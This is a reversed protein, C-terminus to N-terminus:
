QRPIVKQRPAVVCTTGYSGCSWCGNTRRRLCVFCFETQCAKCTMHKCGRSLEILSGCKPCARLKPIEINLFDVRVTGCYRLKALKEADTCNANGCTASSLPTKWEHLCYWCFYANSKGNRSCAYCLVSNVSPNQRTCYSQCTPCQNIDGSQMCFNMSIGLELQDLEIDTAGGYRRITNFEWERACLPCKIETKRNTSVESWAYDMLGDPSISHGCPMKLVVIKNEKTNEMTIMCDESSRPISPDIKRRSESGGGGPLRMVMFINAGNRLNYDALTKGDQLYKSLYILQQHDVAIGTREEVLQKLRSM